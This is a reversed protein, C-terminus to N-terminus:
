SEGCEPGFSRMFGKAPHAEILYQPHPYQKRALRHALGKRWLEAPSRSKLPPMDKRTNLDM